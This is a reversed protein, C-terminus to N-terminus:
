CLQVVVVQVDLQIVIVIDDVLVCNCEVIECLGVVVVEVVVLEDCVYVLEENFIVGIVVLDKCWVYDDCVCKLIVQWVNLEVQVGEVSCYLGCIQCVIRVLNVEVQQLVVVIDFLDLQVLLQGCEVCMGDDVNIVVVIGVVLLIIQVQNGQVYVDDIEEFWCGFM